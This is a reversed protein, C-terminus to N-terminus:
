GAMLASALSPTLTPERGDIFVLARRRDVIAALADFVQPDLVAGKMARMREIAEELPQERRYPRSTTLADFVEARGGADRQAFRRRSAGAHGKDALGGDGRGEGRARLLPASM